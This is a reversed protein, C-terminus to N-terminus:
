ESALFCHPAPRGRVMGGCPHWCCSWLPRGAIQPTDTVAVCGDAGPAVICASWASRCGREGGGDRLIVTYECVYMSSSSTSLPTPSSVMLCTEYRWVILSVSRLTIVQLTGLGRLPQHVHGTKMDCTLVNATKGSGALETSSIIGAFM